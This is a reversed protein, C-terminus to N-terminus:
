LSHLFLSRGRRSDSHLRVSAPAVTTVFVISDYLHRELGGSVEGTRATHVWHSQLHAPSQDDPGSCRQRCGFACQGVPQPAVVAPAPSSWRARRAGPRHRGVAGSRASRRSGGVAAALSPESAPPAWFAFLVFPPPAGLSNVILIYVTAPLAARQVMRQKLCLAHSGAGRLAQSVRIMMKASEAWSARMASSHPCIRLRKLPHIM